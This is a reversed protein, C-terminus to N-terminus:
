LTTATSFLTIGGQLLWLPLKSCAHVLLPGLDLQFDLRGADVLSAAMCLRSIAQASNGACTAAAPVAVHSRTATYSALYLRVAGKKYVNRLM